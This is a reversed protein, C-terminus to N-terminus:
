LALDDDETDIYEGNQMGQHVDSFKNDLFRHHQGVKGAVPDIRRM